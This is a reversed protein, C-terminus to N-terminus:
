PLLNYELKLAILNRKESRGITVAFAKSIAHGEEVEDGMGIESRHTLTRRSVLILELPLQKLKATRSLSLRHFLRGFCCKSLSFM